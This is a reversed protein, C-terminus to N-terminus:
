RSAVLDALRNLITRGTDAVTDLRGTTAVRVARQVQQPLRASLAHCLGATLAAEAEEREHAALLVDGATIREIVAWQPAAPSVTTGSGRLIEIARAARGTRALGRLHIERYTFENALMGSEPARDLHGRYARMTDDFLEAQGAEGAARALVANATARTGADASRAIAHRLRMMAAPIRGAKRLENGHMTLAETMFAPEGLHTAILLARGTWKAASTLKEEPLLTGLAVGLSLRAQGLVALSEREILGEAARSELRAVLPWLEDVADSAHGSKRAIEALSLVSGAFQMMAAFTADDAETVGLAHVPIGLTHAIQRLAGVDNIVRRRTEIMSIYTKDYGLLVALREQSIGNLRRYTRLIQGLERTRLARSADPSSWLWLASGAM